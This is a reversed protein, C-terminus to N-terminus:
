GQRRAYANFAHTLAGAFEAEGPRILGIHAAYEAALVPDRKLWFTLNEYRIANDGSQIKKFGSPSMNALKAGDKASFRKAYESIFIIDADRESSNQGNEALLTRDTNTRTFQMSNGEFQKQPFSSKSSSKNAQGLGRTAACPLSEEYAELAIAGYM